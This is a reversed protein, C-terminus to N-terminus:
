VEEIRSTRSPFTVADARRTGLMPVPQVGMVLTLAQVHALVQANTTANLTAVATTYNSRMNDLQWIIDQLEARHRKASFFRKFRSRREGIIHELEETLATIDGGLTEIVDQHAPSIMGDNTAGRKLSAALGDINKYIDRVQKKNSSAMEASTAFFLLGSAASKLPPFADSSQVIGELVLLLTDKTRM